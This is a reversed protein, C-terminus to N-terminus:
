GVAPTSLLWLGLMTYAIMLLLLPVQSAVAPRGPVLRLALAHGVAVAAVHAAVIIAVQTHWIAYVRGPDTLLSAVVHLDRTGFLDWGLAFPDSAARLAHQVDVVFVPLYHAVHYGVAIPVLALVLGGPGAGGAPGLRARTLRAVTLWALGLLAFTGLLGLTNPLMLASRGPYELPNEGLFAVWTFTRSFGDFSVSSLVLLVFAVGSPGPGAVALLRLGPLTVTLADGPPDGHGGRADERGLPALWAIMRFFVSFPEAYGLWAREGFLFVGVLTVLLYGAVVGALLAPDAPSPHVLELWAFALVGVAAPGYGARGPYGLPPEWGVGRALRYLGSWPNVHAWLDGFLAHLYTFGIWWVTWVFLPLPNSLPDRSGRLGAAVLVVVVALSVLSAVTSVASAVASPRSPLDLRWRLTSLQAFASSPVLAVLAFSAAVVLAGGVIYLHTPLLLVFAQGTTHATAVGAAGAVASGVLAALWRSRSSGPARM